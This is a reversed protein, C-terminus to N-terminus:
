FRWSFALPRPKEFKYTHLPAVLCIRFKAPIRARSNCTVCINVTMEKVLSVIPM